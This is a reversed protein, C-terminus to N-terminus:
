DTSPHDPREGPEGPQESDGGAGSPITTEPSETTEEEGHLEVEKNLELVNTEDPFLQPVWIQGFDKEDIQNPQRKDMMLMFWKNNTQAGLHWNLKNTWYFEGELLEFGRDVYHETIDNDTETNLLAYKTEAKAGCVM